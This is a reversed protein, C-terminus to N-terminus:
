KRKLAEAIGKEALPEMIKYGKLNPHIGDAALELPLVKRDDVMASYYDVYVINNKDAYAKLMANLKAVKEVPNLGLRWPFNYAPLVSSLVVKINNVKALDNM